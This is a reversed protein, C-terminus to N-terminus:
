VTISLYTCSLSHILLSVYQAKVPTNVNRKEYQKAISLICANATQLQKYIIYIHLTDSVGIEQAKLHLIVTGYPVCSKDRIRKLLLIITGYPFYSNCSKRMTAATRRAKAMPTACLHARYGALNVAPHCWRLRDFKCFACIFMGRMYCTLCQNIKCLVGHM